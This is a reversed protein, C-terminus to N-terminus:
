AEVENSQRPEEGQRKISEIMGYGGIEMIIIDILIPPSFNLILNNWNLTLWISFVLMSGLFTIYSAYEEIENINM